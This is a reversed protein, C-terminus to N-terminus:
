PIKRKAQALIKESLRPIGRRAVGENIGIGGQQKLRKSTDSQTKLFYYNIM